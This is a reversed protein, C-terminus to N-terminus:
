RRSYHGRAFSFLIATQRVRYVLRDEETIRRSWQGQMDHKMPEPKGVGSFPDRLIEEILRMIRLATKPDAGIWHVLDYRFTALLIAQREEESVAPSKPHERDRNRKAASM